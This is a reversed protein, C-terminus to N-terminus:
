QSFVFFGEVEYKEKSGINNERISLTLFCPQRSSCSWSIATTPLITHQIVLSCPVLDNAPVPGHFLIPWSPVSIKSFLKFFHNLHSCYNQYILHFLFATKILLPSASTGSKSVMLVLAPVWGFFSNCCHAKTHCNGKHHKNLFQSCVTASGSSGGFVAM